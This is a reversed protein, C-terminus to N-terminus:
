KLSLYHRSSKAVMLFCTLYSFSFFVIDAVVDIHFFQWVWCVVLWLCSFRVAFVNDGDVVSGHLLIGLCIIVECCRERWVSVFDELDFVVESEKFSVVSLQARVMSSFSALM